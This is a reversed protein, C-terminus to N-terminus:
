FKEFDIAFSDRNKGILLLATVIWHLCFGNFIVFTTFTTFFNYFTRKETTKNTGLSLSHPKFVKWLPTCVFLQSFTFLIFIMFFEVNTVNTFNLRSVLNRTNITLLHLEFMEYCEQFKFIRLMEHFKMMEDFWLMEHVWVNGLNWDHSM